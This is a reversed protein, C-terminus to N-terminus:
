DELQVLSSLGTIDLLRRTTSTPRRLVLPRDGLARVAQALASLGRSDIFSMATVDVVVRGRCGNIAEDLRASLVPATAVDIEGKVVITAEGNLSLMATRFEPIALSPASRTLRARM